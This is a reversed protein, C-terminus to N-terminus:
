TDVEDFVADLVTEAVGLGREAEDGTPDYATLAVAGIRRKRGIAAIVGLLEDLELGGPAAFPNARLESPDLVDLDVHLYITDIEEPMRDLSSSVALAVSSEGRLDAVSVRSVRSEVLLREEEPDLDRAGILVVAEDAVSKFSRMSAALGTWCRGTLMALVMGDFFGSGSTEPTNFDGHADFWVVGTSGRPLASLTGLAALYCNGTLLVPLAGAALARAVAEHTQQQLEVARGLETFFGEAARIEVLDVQRDHRALRDVLGHEVFHLPGRGMRDGYHGSDYPVQIVSLKM